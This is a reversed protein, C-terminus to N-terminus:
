EKESLPQPKRRRPKKITAADEIESPEEVAVDDGTDDSEAEDEVQDSDLPADDAPGDDVVVEEVVEEIESPVEAVPEAEPAQEDEPESQLILRGSKIHKSVLDEDVVVGSFGGLTIGNGYVVPTPKGNYVKVMAM